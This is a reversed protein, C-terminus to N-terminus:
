CGHALTLGRMAATTVATDSTQATMGITFSYYTFDIYTPTPDGGPFQLGGRDTHGDEPGMGPAAGYHEHAYHVAFLTHLFFWSCLITFIALGLHISQEVAPLDKGSLLGVIACLSVAAAVASVALITWGAEDQLAAQRRISSTTARFMMQWALILYLTALIDWAAVIRLLTGWGPPLLFGVVAGIAAALFLRPHTRLHVLM